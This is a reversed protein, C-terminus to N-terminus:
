TIVYNEKGDFVEQLINQVFMEVNQNERVFRDRLKEHRYEKIYCQWFCAAARHPHVNSLVGTVIKDVAQKLLSEEDSIHTFTSDHSHHYEHRHHELEEDRQKISEMSLLHKIEDPNANQWFLTSKEAKQVVKHEIAAFDVDSDGKSFLKLFKYSTYNNVACCRFFRARRIPTTEIFVKHVLENCRKLLENHPSNGALVKAVEEKDLEQWAEVSYYGDEQLVSKYREQVSM